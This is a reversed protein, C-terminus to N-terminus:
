CLESREEFGRTDRWDDPFVVFGSIPSISKVEGNLCEVFYDRCTNGSCVAKTLTRDFGIKGPSDFSFNFVFSASVILIILGLFAVKEYMKQLILIM